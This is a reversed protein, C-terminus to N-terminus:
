YESYSDNVLDYLLRSPNEGYILIKIKNKDDTRMYSEGNSFREDDSWKFIRFLPRLKFLDLVFDSYINNKSVDNNFYVYELVKDNIYFNIGGDSEKKIKYVYDNLIYTIIITKDKYIEDEKLETMFSYLSIPSSATIHMARMSTVDSIYHTKLQRRLDEYIENAM